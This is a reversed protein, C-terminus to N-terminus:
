QQNAWQERQEPTLNEPPEEAPSNQQFQAFPNTPQTSSHSQSFTSRNLSVPNANTSDAFQRHRNPSDFSRSEASRRNSHQVGFENLPRQPMTGRMEPRSTRSDDWLKEAPPHDLSPRNSSIPTPTRSIRKAFPSQGTPTRMSHSTPQVSTHRGFQGQRSKALNQNATGGQRIEALMHQAEALDPQISLAIRYHREAAELQGKDHLIRGINYHGAAEGVTATFHSLATRTEGVHALAIGLHYRYAPVNPEVATAQKFTTVAEDYRKSSLYFMGLADQAHANGPELQIAKKFGQEAQANRGAIQDLRALGLIADVSKADSKLALEYHKRADTYQERQEQLKAYAINTKVPNKLQNDSSGLSPM